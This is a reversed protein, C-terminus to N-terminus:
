PPAPAPRTALGVAVAAAVLTIFGSVTFLVVLGARDQNTKRSTQGAVVFGSLSLDTRTWRRVQVRVTEDPQGGPLPISAAARGDRRAVVLVETPVPPGLGSSSLVTGDDARVVLYIDVSPRPDIPALARAPALDARSATALSAVAADARASLETDRDNGLGRSILAYLSSSLCCIVVMVIGVGALMIRTRISVLFVARHVDPRGCCM